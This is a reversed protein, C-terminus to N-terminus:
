LRLDQPDFVLRLERFYREFVEPKVNQLERFQEAKLVAQEASRDFASNGSSSIISVNVVRGTPVLKILLECRMGTRASPPRSWFQEIRSAILAVYSQATAEAQQEALLAKEAAEAAAAEEALQKELREKEIRDLEEVLAQQRKKEEAAELKKAQEAEEKKRKADAIKKAEDKKRKDELEKQRKQEAAKAQQKKEQAAKEEQQRKTLDIKRPTNETSQKPAQEPATQKLEVLKAQVFKPTKKPEPPKAQQVGFFLFAILGAHLVLSAVISVALTPKAKLLFAM